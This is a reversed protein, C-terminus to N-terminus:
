RTTGDAAPRTPAVAVGWEEEMAGRLVDDQSPWWHSYTSLCIAPSNGLMSAVATVSAGKAILVSATYHRLAHWHSGAARIEKAAQRRDWPAPGQHFLLGDEGPGFEEVHAALVEVARESLPVTRVSRASKVPGFRPGDNLTVLQRDVRATRRLWDVRDGTLGFLEGQRLGTMAAFLVAARLRADIADAVAEVEARSLPVLMTSEKRGLRVGEAPSSAILRDHVAARLLSALLGHIRAVSAPQMTSALRAVWAQIQSRRITTLKAAGFEPFIHARLTSEHSIRTQARWPQSRAWETAYDKLTRSSRPSIYTGAVLEGDLRAKHDQAARLTPYTKSLERDTGPDRWRVKYRYDGRQGRRQISTM